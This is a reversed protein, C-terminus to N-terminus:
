VFCKTELILTINSCGVPEGANNILDFKLSHHSGHVMCRPDFGTTFVELDCFGKTSIISGLVPYGKLKGEITLLNDSTSVINALIHFTSDKSWHISTPGFKKLWNMIQTPM